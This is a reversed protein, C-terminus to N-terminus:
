INKLDIVKEYFGTVSQHIIKIDPLNSIDSNMVLTGASSPGGIASLNAKQSTCQFLKIIEFLVLCKEENTLELFKKRGNSLTDMQASLRKAYVSDQLKNLFEYYLRVLETETLNSKESLVVGKNVKYDACYKGVRKVIQQLEETLVLQNAGRYILQKNTRGSLHMRFGDVSFLTNIKIRAIKIDKGM